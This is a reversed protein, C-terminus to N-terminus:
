NHPFTSYVVFYYYENASTEANQERKNQANMLGNKYEKHRSLMVDTIFEIVIIISIVFIIIMSITVFGVYKYAILIFTFM